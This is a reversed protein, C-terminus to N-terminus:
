GGFRPEERGKINTELSGEGLETQIEFLPTPFNMWFFYKTFLTPFSFPPFLIIKFEFASAGSKPVM